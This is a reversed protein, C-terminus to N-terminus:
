SLARALDRLVQAVFAKREPEPLSRFSKYIHLARPSLTPSLSPMSGVVASDEQKDLSNKLDVAKCHEQAKLALERGFQAASDNLSTFSTPDFGVDKCFCAREHATSGAVRSSGLRQALALLEDQPLQGQRITNSLM